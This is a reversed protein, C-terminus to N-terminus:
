AVDPIPGQDVHPISGRTNASTFCAALSRAM